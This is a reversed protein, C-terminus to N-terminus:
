PLGGRGRPSAPPPPPPAGDQDDPVPLGDAGFLRRVGPAIEIANPATAAAPAGFPSSAVSAPPADGAPTPFASFVPAPAAAPMPGASAQVVVVRAYRSLSPSALQASQERDVAVFGGASRLVIELANAEPVGDLQLTLPGSPVREGNAIATQGVRAWETLIEAATAGDATLWVRGDRISLQVGPAATANSATVVTVVLVTRFFRLM